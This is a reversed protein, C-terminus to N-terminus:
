RVRVTRYSSHVPANLSSGKFYARMRWSGTSTLKVSARYRSYTSYDYVRANVSKKYRWKGREFRYCKIVVVKASAASAVQRPRLSGYVSYTKNRTGTKPYGTPRGLAAKPTVMVPASLASFHDIADTLFQTRGDYRVRYWHKMTNAATAFAYNGMADTTGTAAESWTYGGDASHDLHLPMGGLPIGNEVMSGTVLTATGYGIPALPGQASIEPAILRALSIDGGFTGATLNGSTYVINNGSISPLVDDDGSTIVEFELTSADFVGVHFAPGDSQYFAIHRGSVRPGGEGVPTAVAPGAAVATALDKYWVDAIGSQRQWAVMTGDIDPFADNVADNTLRTGTGTRLDYVFVDEAEVYVIRDGSIRAQTQTGPGLPLIVDTGAGLDYLHIDGTASDTYIVRSGSIDPMTQDGARSTLRLEARTAINFAYIESDTNRTDAFVVWAGAIRPNTQAGAAASVTTTTRSRLNYAHINWDLASDSTRQWVAWDGDIDANAWSSGPPLFIPGDGAVRTIAAWETWALAGVEEAVVPAAGVGFLLAFAICCVVLFRVKM